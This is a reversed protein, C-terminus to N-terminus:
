ELTRSSSLNEPLCFSYGWYELDPQPIHIGKKSIKSKKEYSGSHPGKHSFNWSYVIPQILEFM